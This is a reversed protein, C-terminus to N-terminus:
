RFAMWVLGTIGAAALALLGSSALQSIFLLQVLGDQRVKKDFFLYWMLRGVRVIYFMAFVAPLVTLWQLNLTVTLATGGTSVLKTDQLQVRDM